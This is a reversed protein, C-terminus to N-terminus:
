AGALPWVTSPIENAIASSACRRGNRGDNQRRVDALRGAAGRGQQVCVIGDRIMAEPTEESTEIGRDNAVRVNRGIRCNKDIIAGDIVRATASAWAAAARRRRGPWSRRGIEYDDAGMLVSNRITVDRGIRCRVGIVSNEIM